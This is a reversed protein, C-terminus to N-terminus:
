ANVQHKAEEYAVKADQLQLDVAESSEVESARRADFLSKTDTMLNNWDSATISDGTVKDTSSSSFLSVGTFTALAQAEDQLNKYGQSTNSASVTEGTAADLTLASQNYGYTSGASYTGLTVDAPTALQRSLNAVINDYDVPAINDSGAVVQVMDTGGTVSLTSGSAM